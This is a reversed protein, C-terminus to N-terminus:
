TSEAQYFAKYVCALRVQRNSTELPTRSLLEHNLLPRTGHLGGTSHLGGTGHLGGTSHLGATSHSGGTSHLDGPAPQNLKTLLDGLQTNINYLSTM